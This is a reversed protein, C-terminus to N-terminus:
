EIENIVQINPYESILSLVTDTINNTDWTSRLHGNLLFSFVLEEGENTTIYGSLGRVNSITGTKAKVNGEAKTGKMRNRLTGDVGAISQLDLWIDRYQHNKM